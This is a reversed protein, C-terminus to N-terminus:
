FALVIIDCDSSIKKLKDKRKNYIEIAKARAESQGSGDL